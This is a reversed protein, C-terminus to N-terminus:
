KPQEQTNKNTIRSLGFDRKGDKPEGKGKPKAMYNVQRKLYDPIGDKRSIVKGNELPSEETGCCYHILGRSQSDITAQWHKELTDFILGASRTKQGDVLFICHFHPHESSEQERVWAFAPDLGRRSLTQKTKRMTESIDENGNVEGYDKPYRVDARVALMKSHKKQYDNVMGEIREHINQMVPYERETPLAM